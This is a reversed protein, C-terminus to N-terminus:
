EAKAAKAAKKILEIIRDTNYACDAVHLSPIATGVKIFGNKM